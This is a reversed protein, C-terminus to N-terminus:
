VHTVVQRRGKRGWEIYGQSSDLTTNDKLRKEKKKLQCEINNEVGGDQGSGVNKWDLLQM